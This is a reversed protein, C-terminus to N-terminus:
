LWPGSSCAEGKDQPIPIPQSSTQSGGTGRHSLLPDPFSYSFPLLLPRTGPRWAGPPSLCFKGEPEEGRRKRKAQPARAAAMQGVLFVFQFSQSNPGWARMEEREASIGPTPAPQMRRPKHQSHKNLVHGRCCSWSNPWFSPFRDRPTDKALCAPARAPWGCGPGWPM